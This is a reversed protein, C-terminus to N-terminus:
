DTLLRYAIVWGVPEPCPDDETAVDEVTLACWEARQSLMYEELGGSVHESPHFVPGSYDHQGSWGNLLRWEGCRWESLDNFDVEALDIWNPLEYNFGSSYTGDGRTLVTMGFELEM